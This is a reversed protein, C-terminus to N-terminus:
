PRPCGSQEFRSEVSDVAAWLAQDKSIRAGDFGAVHIKREANYLIWLREISALDRGVIACNGRDTAPERDQFGRVVRSLSDSLRDFRAFPSPPPPPPPPPLAQPAAPQVLPSRAAGSRARAASPSKRAVMKKGRDILGAGMSKARALVGAWPLPAAPNRIKVYWYVGGGLGAILLLLVTPRVWWGPRRRKRRKRPVSKKEPEEELL